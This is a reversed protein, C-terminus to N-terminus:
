IQDPPRIVLSHHPYEGPLNKYSLTFERYTWLYLYSGLLVVSVAGLFHLAVDVYSHGTTPWIPLMSALM